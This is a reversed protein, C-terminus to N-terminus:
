RVCSALDAEIEGIARVQAATLPYPLAGLFRQVLEGDIVHALGQSSRELERKRLVLSLQVRLLEDFALRRRAVEKERISDPADVPTTSSSACGSSLSARRANAAFWGSTAEDFGPNAPRVITSM